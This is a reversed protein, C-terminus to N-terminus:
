DSGAPSEQSGVTSPMETVAGPCLAEQDASVLGEIKEQYYSFYRRLKVTSTFPDPSVAQGGPVSRLEPALSAGLLRWVCV